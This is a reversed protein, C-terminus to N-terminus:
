MVSELPDLPCGVISGAKKILKNVRNKDDATISNGWCVVTDFLVSAVISQYFVNLLSRGVNFSRLKRLFFLRSQAKKIVASSNEKWNLGKDIHVGLYKYSSM